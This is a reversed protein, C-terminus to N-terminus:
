SPNNLAPPSAAALETQPALPVEPAAGDLRTWRLPDGPMQRRLWIQSVSSWRRVHPTMSDLVYDGAGLRVVLVTHLGYGRVFSVAYFMREAPFGADTLQARKEIALDECDGFRERGPAPRQWKESLGTADSDPVQITFRNVSSNIQKVMRRLAREAPVARAAPRPAAAINIFNAGSHVTAALASGDAVMAGTAGPMAAAFRVPEASPAPQPVAGLLCLAKDRACMEVFGFPADALAGLPMYPSRDRHSRAEASVSAALSAVSLIVSFTRLNIAM